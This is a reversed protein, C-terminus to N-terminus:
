DTGRKKENLRSQIDVLKKVLPNDPDVEAPPYFYPVVTVCTAGRQICSEIAEAISPKAIELFGTEVLQFRDGASCQLRSGLGMVERNSAQRRSGHAIVVLGRIHFEPPM